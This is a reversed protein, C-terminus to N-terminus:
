NTSCHVSFGHTAPEIGARVVGNLGTNRGTKPPSVRTKENRSRQGSTDASAEAHGSIGVTQALKGHTVTALQEVAQPEGCPLKPLGEIAANVDIASLHTYRDMTLTITSHRALHQAVKPHVGAAALNSIYQHRFAHFDFVNGSDDVFDVEAAAV